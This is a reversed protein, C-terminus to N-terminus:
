GSPMDLPSGPEGPAPVPPPVEQLTYPHEQNPPYSLILARAGLVDQGPRWQITGAQGPEDREYNWDARCDSRSIIHGRVPNLLIAEGDVVMSGGATQYVTNTCHTSAQRFDTLEFWGDATFVFTINAGTPSLWRGDPTQQHVGSVWNYRWTGVIEPPVPEGPMGQAM